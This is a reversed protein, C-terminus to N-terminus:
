KYLLWYYLNHDFIINSFSDLLRFEYDGLGIDSTNIRIFNNDSDDQVQIDNITLDSVSSESIEIEQIDSDCGFKSTAVVNYIGGKTVKALYTTGVINDDEDRWTYNYDPNPNDVMIELESFNSMCIIDETPLTVIPKERVIFQINSDVACVDYIPNELRVTITQSSTLFPNPLPSPLVTGNEDFYSIILGTQSGIITSEINSTDFAYIGDFDTDCEEQIAVPNAVPVSNVVFDLMTEDSCKGDIDNSSSNEIVARVEQSATIFPNPM